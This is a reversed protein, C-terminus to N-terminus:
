VHGQAQRQLYLEALPLDEPLTIKINDGHGHVVWPLAGSREMAAAEDTLVLAQARAAELAARLATLRFMQPTLARWLGDRAVTELVRQQADVRKVTDAVPVALLAGDGHAGKEILADIDEARVCPRVADHVLVWDADRAQEGLAALGNLVTHMREQGGVFAGLFKRHRYRLTPWHADDAAIGVLVGSVKPHACLRDLTHALVPRGALSLYQKPIASGMRLGAGAAPVLAWFRTDSPTGDSLSSRSRGSELTVM